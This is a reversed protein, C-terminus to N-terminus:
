ATSNQLNSRIGNPGGGSVREDLAKAADRLHEPPLHQYGVTM